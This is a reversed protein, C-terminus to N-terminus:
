ARRTGRRLFRGGVLLVGSAVLVLLGVPLHDGGGGAGTNPLGPLNGGNGTPPPSPILSLPLFVNQYQWEVVNKGLAAGQIDADRFHLGHYVRVDITDILVDTFRTFKRTDTTGAKAVTFAVQDTGFFAKAAHMMAGSVCNYGSVHDSYPPTPAYPEWTPDGVTQPNGDNEGQRIATIPRWFGYFVKDNWCNIVTDALGLDLMAFLRAQEVLTLGKEVALARFTRHFMEVPNTNDYFKALAEQAPTRASGTKGGLAKVEAYDKAYADSTLANPAKSRFQSPSEILFPQVKSVWAFPDSANAPPEPRWQGPKDGPVLALPVYRGDNARAALMAAAAATGVAIGATVSEQGDAKVAAAIAADRLGNLRAVIAPGLTTDTGAVALVRQDTLIGVLVGHAATVVAASKSASAPASPLGHLIAQDGGLILLVAGYVAGQVMALHLTSPPPTQGLGKTPATPANILADVAHLNWDLVTTDQPAASVAQASALPALAVTLLAVVLMLASAYRLRRDTRDHM